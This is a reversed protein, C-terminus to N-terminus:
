RGRRRVKDQLLGQDYQDLVGELDQFFLLARGREAATLGGWVGWEQDTAFSFILCNRRVPCRDCISRAYAVEAASMPKREDAGYFVEYPEDRCLAKHEWTGPSPM